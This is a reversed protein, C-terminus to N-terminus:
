GQGHGLVAVVVLKLCEGALQQGMGYGQALVASLPEGEESYGHTGGPGSGAPYERM